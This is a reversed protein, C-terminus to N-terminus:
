PLCRADVVVLPGAPAGGVCASSAHSLTDGNLILSGFRSADGLRNSSLLDGMKERPAKLIGISFMYEVSVPLNGLLVANSRQATPAPLSTDRLGRIRKELGVLDSVDLLKPAQVLVLSVCFAAFAFVSAIAHWRETSVRASAGAYRELRLGGLTAVGLALYTVLAYAYKKVAYESGMGFHLAAAQVLCLAAVTGGYASLYRAVAYERSCGRRQWCRLLLLSVALAAISLLLTAKLPSIRASASMVPGLSIGGNNGSIQRMAGFSPNLLVSAAGAAVLVAALTLKCRRRPAAYDTALYGTVSVGVLVGLLELGGLVHVATCVAAGGLLVLRGQISSGNKELRAGGLIAVLVAAQAVLQAFFFNEVVEAGHVPLRLLFHNLVLVVAFAGLATTAARDPLSKLLLVCALWVSALSLLTLVQMGLLPSGVFFGIVAALKHSLNPYINMEWLSPDNPDSLSWEDFIRFTLAYHHSLDVSATWLTDMWSALFLAIVVAYALVLVRVMRDRVM